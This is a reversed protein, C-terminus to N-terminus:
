AEVQRRLTELHRMATVGDRIMPADDAAEGRFAKLTVELLAHYGKVDENAAATFNPSWTLADQTDSLTAGLDQTKFAPDRYYTVDIVNRVELRRHDGMIQVFEMPTGRSQVTGMVVTGIAGSDFGLAIHMLLRGPGNEVKRASIERIPSAALFAPLDMYHVCHHLFFGSYDVAGRFYTPATMYSGYFGLVPGFEGGRVITGAIRNGISWRKMFGLVLPKGARESAALLEEAQAATGGPPKEMFVPLGKALAALGIAHHAAPGVAMGVADLGPHALLDRHDAYAARVGFQRAARALNGADVDCLAVLEVDQRTLQPLLMQSAHTGCGIWGIKLTM